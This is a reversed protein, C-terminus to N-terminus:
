TKINFNQIILGCRMIWFRWKIIHNICFKTHQLGLTQKISSCSNGTNRGMKKIFNGPFKDLCQWTSADDKLSNTTKLFLHFFSHFQCKSDITTTYPANKSGWQPSPPFHRGKRKRGGDQIVENGSGRFSTMWSPPRYHFPRWKGGGVCHPDFFAGWTKTSTMEPAAMKSGLHRRWLYCRSSRPVGM